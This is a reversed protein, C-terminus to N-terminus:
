AVYSLQGKSDVDEGATTQVKMGQSKSEQSESGQSESEGPTADARKIDASKIVTDSWGQAGMQLRETLREILLPEAAKSSASIHSVTATKRLRAIEVNLQPNERLLALFEVEEEETLNGLVYGAALENWREM